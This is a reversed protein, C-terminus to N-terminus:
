GPNFSRAEEGGMTSMGKWMELDVDDTVFHVSGDAMLVVVGGVHQSRAAATADRLLSDTALRCPMNLEPRNHCAGPDIVDAASSNPTEKTFLIARGAHATWFMGRASFGRLHESFVMTNSTGDSIQGMKAGRNIGFIARLPRLPPSPLPQLAGSSPLLEPDDEYAAIDGHKEGSFFALYNALFIMPCCTVNLPGEADSPCILTPIHTELTEKPWGGSGALFPNHPVYWLKEFDMREYLENYELFPYLHVMYSIQPDCFIHVEHNCPGRNPLRESQNMFGQPFSQFTSVFNHLALGIQKLNNECQSRRAAERASQVAPLLLAVLIGIIAIVVLLEV